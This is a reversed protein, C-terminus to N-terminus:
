AIGWVQVEGRAGTGGAYVADNPGSLRRGAGGGGGGPAAGDTGPMDAPGGNGGSGGHRSTGGSTASVNGDDGFGGGGGAYLKATPTPASSYGGVGGAESFPVDATSFHLGFSSEGATGGSPTLAAVSVTTSSALKSASLTFPLYNGGNGGIGAFPGNNATGPKGGGWMQGGIKKYGTPKPFAATTTFVMMFPRLVVTHLAAGDCQIRRAEGPLMPISAQDDITEGGSPDITIIGSGDNVLTATWGNGLAACAALAQTFTGSTYVIECRNDAINLAVNNAGTRERRISATDAAMSAWNTTDVSPDTTGAGNTKRRYTRFDAPSWVANGETYSTGSVWKSAAAAQAATAALAAANAESQAAANAKQSATAASAAASAADADADAATQNVQATWAAIQPDRAVQAQILAVAKQSFVQPTDTGFNPAPPLPSIVQTITM